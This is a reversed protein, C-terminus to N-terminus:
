LTACSHLLELNVFHAITLAEPHKETTRASAPWWLNRQFVLELFHYFVNCDGGGRKLEARSWVKITKGFFLSCRQSTKQSPTRIQSNRKNVSSVNLVLVLQYHHLMLYRRIHVQSSCYCYSVLHVGRVGHSLIYLKLILSGSFTPITFLDAQNNECQTCNM